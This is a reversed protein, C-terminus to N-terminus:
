KRLVRLGDPDVDLLRLLNSIAHSPLVIGREYKHFANPGGGLTLGAEQQTLRLKRRIRRVDGPLLVNEARAKLGNLQRDSEQMDRGTHVGEGCGPCYWGPMEFTASLDKYRLTM